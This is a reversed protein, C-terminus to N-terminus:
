NRIHSDEFRFKQTLFLTNFFFLLVIGKNRALYVEFIFVFLIMIMFFLHIINNTRISIDLSYLLYFVFLLFAFVGYTVLFQLYQNHLNFGEYWNPALNYSMYYYDLYHQVDGLGYGFLVKGDQITHFLGIKFFILRLELDSINSKEEYTFKKAKLLDVTPTFDKSNYVLGSSFREEIHPVFIVSTIGLLLIGFTLLLTKRSVKKKNILVYLLLLVFFCFIVAKSACFILGLLHIALFFYVLRLQLLKSGKVLFYHILFFISLVITISFYVPHQDYLMTFDFFFLQRTPAGKIIKFLNIALLITTAVTVGISFTYFVKLVNINRGKFVSLVFPILVMLLLKDLQLIGETIDKSMLASVVAILFLTIPILFYFARFNRLPVKGKILLFLAYLVSVIITVNGLNLKFPITSAMLAVLLTEINKFYLLKNDIILKM